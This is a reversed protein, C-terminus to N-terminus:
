GYHRGGCTRRRCPFHDFKATRSLACGGGPMTRPLSRQLAYALGSYAPAPMLIRSSHAVAPIHIPYDPPPYRPRMRSHITAPACAGSRFLGAQPARLFGMLREARIMIAMSVNAAPETAIMAVPDRAMLLSGRKECSVM